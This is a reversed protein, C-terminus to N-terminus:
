IMASGAGHAASFSFYFGFRFEVGSGAAARSRWNIATQTNPSIMTYHPQPLLWAPM